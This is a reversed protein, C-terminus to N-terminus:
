GSAEASCGSQVGTKPVNRLCCKTTHKAHSPCPLVMVLEGQEHQNNAESSSKKDGEDEHDDGSPCELVEQEM